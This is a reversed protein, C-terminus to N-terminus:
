WFITTITTAPALSMATIIPLNIPVFASTRGWFPIFEGTDPHVCSLLVRKKHLLDAAEKKTFHAIGNIATDKASKVDAQMQRLVPDSTIGNMPNAVNFWHLLRGYRTSLDHKVWWPTDFDIKYDRM